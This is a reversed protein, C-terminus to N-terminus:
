VYNKDYIKQSCMIQQTTKHSCMIQLLRIVVCLKCYIKQSCMITKHVLSGNIKHSCMTQLLRIVVGGYIKQSCM